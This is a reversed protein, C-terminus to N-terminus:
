KLLALLKVLGFFNPLVGQCGTRPIINITIFIVVIFKQSFHIRIEKWNKKKGSGLGVKNLKQSIQVAFNSCINEISSKLSADIKEEFPSSVPPLEVKLEM